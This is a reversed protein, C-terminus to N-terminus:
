KREYGEHISSLRSTCKDQAHIQKDIYFRAQEQNFRVEPGYLGIAAV